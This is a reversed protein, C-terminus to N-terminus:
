WAQKNQDGMRMGNAARTATKFQKGKDQVREHISLGHHVSQREQNIHFPSGSPQKKTTENTFSKKQKTM